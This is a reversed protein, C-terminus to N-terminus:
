ANRTEKVGEVHNVENILWVLKERDDIEALLRQKYVAREEPLMREVIDTLDLGPLAEQDSDDFVDAPDMYKMVRQERLNIVEGM